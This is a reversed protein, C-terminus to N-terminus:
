ERLVIGVDEATGILDLGLEHADHVDDLGDEGGEIEVVEFGLNGEAIRVVM